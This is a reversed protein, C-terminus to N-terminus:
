GRRGERVRTEAITAIDLARQYSTTGRELREKAREAFSAAAPWDGVSFRLEAYALRALGEEGRGDYAAALEYWASVNDPETATAAQLLAIAETAKAPDNAALLARGLNMQLLANGPKLELARRNQVIAQPVRGSTLLIEGALEHYFPNQPFERVLSEAEKDAKSFDAARMAAVSRAYRAAPSQDSEPYKILTRGTNQTYGFLKAQILRFEELEKASDTAGRHDTTAVRSRLAQIRDSWLPHTRMWPPIRQASRMENYRFQRSAFTVLGEGSQGSADMYTVAAQDAASEQAQSFQVFEAMAFQQSGAILAAGAAPAGAAVALIGLGISLFAPRMAASAAERSRLVHGGALHGTEHALVGKVENPTEAAALLGTHIFMTRSNTVFANISNDQILIVEIQAPDLNAARFIPDTYGRIVEEIEADRIVTRAQAPVVLATCAAFAVAALVATRVRCMAPM